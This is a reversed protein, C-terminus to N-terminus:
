RFRIRPDIYKYSIDAIYNVSIVAISIIMIITQVVPLDRGIISALLLRGMGPIAFVQEIIISGAIIDVLTVALFTIVPIIANRMVHRSLVQWRSNGRSYATRVYDESMEKVMSSRLLKIVMASKPLAIALAPFVLFSWFKSPDEAYPIFDGPTFLKFILGFVYTFIIGIFFAPISMIIQNLVSIIRDPISHAFRALIVGLPLSIVLVMIFSIGSLAATIAIKGSLLESVPINYSYSTGYDGKVFGVLWKFYRLVAPENLGLQERLLAVKEPTAQTGLMRTTPDGPIIQFALFVLVSIGLLTILFIAVKKLIYKM